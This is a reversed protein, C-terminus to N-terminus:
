STTSEDMGYAERGRGELPSMFFWCITKEINISNSIFRPFFAPSALATTGTYCREVFLPIGPTYPTRMQLPIFLSPDLFPFIKLRPDV